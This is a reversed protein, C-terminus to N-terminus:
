ARPEWTERTAESVGREDQNSRSEAASSFGQGELGWCRGAALVGAPHGRCQLISLPKRSGKKQEEPGGVGGGLRGEPDKWTKMRTQWDLPLSSPMFGGTAKKEKKFGRLIWLEQNTKGEWREQRPSSSGPHGLFPSMGGVGEGGSGAAEEKGTRYKEGHTHARERGM